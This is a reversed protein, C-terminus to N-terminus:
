MRYTAAYTPYDPELPSEVIFIRCDSKADVPLIEEEKAIFFDYQELSNWRVDLSGELVFGSVFTERRCRYSHEGQGLSVEMAVIGPTKIEAPSSGGLYVKTSRGKEIVIPFRDSAYDNYYAPQNLTKELNPDLWIQLVSTDPLFKEKHVFGNGSMIVQMDGAALKKWGRYRNDYHELGGNLVFTLIEFGKHSHEGTEAEDLATLHTWYFINSYPSLLGDDEFFGLPKREQLRADGQQGSAQEYKTYSM